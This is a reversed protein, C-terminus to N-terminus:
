YVVPRLISRYPADSGVKCKQYIALDLQEYDFLRENMMFDLTVGFRRKESKRM